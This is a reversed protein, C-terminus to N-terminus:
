KSPDTRWNGRYFAMARAWAKNWDLVQEDVVRALEATVQAGNYGALEAAAHLENIRVAREMAAAACAACLETM